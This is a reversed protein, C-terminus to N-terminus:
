SVYLMPVVPKKVGTSQSENYTQSKKFLWVRNIGYIM